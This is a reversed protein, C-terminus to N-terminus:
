TELQVDAGASVKSGQGSTAQRRALYAAEDFDPKIGEPLKTSFQIPGKRLDYDPLTMGAERSIRYESYLKGAMIQAHSYRDDSEHLGRNFEPIALPLTRPTPDPREYAGVAIPTKPHDQNYARIFEANGRNRRDNAMKRLANVSDVLGQNESQAQLVEDYLQERLEMAPYKTMEYAWLLNPLWNNAMLNDVPVTERDTLGGRKRTLQDADLRADDWGAYFNINSQRHRDLDANRQAEYAKPDVMPFESELLRLRESHDAQEFRELQEKYPAIVHHKVRDVFAGIFNGMPESQPPYLYGTHGKATHLESEPHSMWYYQLARSVQPMKAELLGMATDFDRSGGEGYDNRIVWAGGGPHPLVMATTRPD